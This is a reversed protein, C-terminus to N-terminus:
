VVGRKKKIKEKRAYSEYLSTDKGKAQALQTAEAWSDVREGDVNPALSVMCPDDNKFDREKKALRDNKRKMQGRVKIAKGSWGDGKLVFEVGGESLQMELLSECLDCFQETKYESMLLNRTTDEGCNPDTCKFSYIPM